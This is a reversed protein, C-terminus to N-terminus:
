GALGHVPEVDTPETRVPRDLDQLQKREQRTLIHEPSIVIILRSGARALRAICGEGNEGKVSEPLPEYQSASVALVHSIDDVIVGLPRDALDLILLRRKGSAEDKVRLRRKLDVVPIVRDRVEIVGDVFEPANPIRTIERFHLVEQIKYIEIGYLERGLYFTVLQGQENKEMAENKM